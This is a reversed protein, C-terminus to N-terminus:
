EGKSVIVYTRDIRPTLGASALATSYQTTMEDIFTRPYVACIWWENTSTHSYVDFGSSTRERYGTRQGLKTCGADTLLKELKRKSIAM